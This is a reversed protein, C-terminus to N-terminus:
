EITEQNFMHPVALWGLLIHFKDILYGPVFGSRGPNTAPLGANETLKFARREVSLATIIPEASPRATITASCFQEAAVVVDFREVAVQNSGRSEGLVNDM